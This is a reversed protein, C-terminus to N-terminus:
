DFRQEWTGNVKDKVLDSKFEALEKANNLANSTAFRRNEEEFQRQERQLDSKAEESALREETTFERKETIQQITLQEKRRSEYLGLATQYVEKNQQDEFKL